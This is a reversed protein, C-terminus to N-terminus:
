SAKRLARREQVLDRLFADRSREGRQADIWALDAPGLRTTIEAHALRAPPPVPPLPEGWTELWIRVADQRDLALLDPGAAELPEGTTPDQRCTYRRFRLPAQISRDGRRLEVWDIHVIACDPHDCRTM